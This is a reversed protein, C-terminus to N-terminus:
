CSCDIKNVEFEGVYGKMPLLKQGFIYQEVIKYMLNVAKLEKDVNLVFVPAPLYEPNQGLLWKEYAQHIKTLYELPVNKEEPRNRKQMREYVVKPTSRLYVILDLEIDIHKEIWDYWECLAIYNPDSLLGSSHAMEVFCFRNNQLSREIIQVPKSSPKTQLNLRSLQVYHQFPFNWQQPNEYTLMLLNHGQVSRWEEIPEPRADVQPFHSFYNMLTSKGSGVNGEISVRFPKTMSENNTM